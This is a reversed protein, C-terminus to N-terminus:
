ANYDTFKNEIDSWSARQKGIRKMFYYWNSDPQLCKWVQDIAYIKEDNTEVLKELGKEWVSILKDYFKRNVIYSSTTQGEIIKGVTRDVNPIYKLLNYGLMVVDFDSHNNFFNSLEYELESKSVLFQFDDEFILVNEYGENKAKKLISLHSKSCGISGRSTEVAPFLEVDLEMKKLEEIMLKRRDVRRDLNIYYMKKVLERVKYIPPLIRFFSVYQQFTFFLTIRIDYIEKLKKYIEKEKKHNLNRVILNTDFSYEIDEKLGESLNKSVYNYKEEYDKTSSMASGLLDWVNTNRRHARISIVESSSIDLSIFICNRYFVAFDFNVFEDNETTIFNDKVEESPEEGNKVIFFSYEGLGRLPCKSDDTYFAVRMNQQYYVFEERYILGYEYFNPNDVSTILFGPRNLYRYCVDNPLSKTHIVDFKSVSYSEVKVIREPFVLNLYEFVKPYGTDTYIKTNKPCLLLFLLASIGSFYGIELVNSNLYKTITKSVNVISTEKKKTIEFEEKSEDTAHLLPILQKSVMQRWKQPIETDIDETRNM